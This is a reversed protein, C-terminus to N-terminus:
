FNNRNKIESIQMFEEDKCIENIDELKIIGIIREQYYFFASKHLNLIKVVFNFISPAILFTSIRHYKRLFDQLTMDHLGKLILTGKNKKTFIQDYIFNTFAGLSIPSIKNKNKPLPISLGIKSLKNFISNAGGKESYIFSPRLILHDIEKVVLEGLVKQQQYISHSINKLLPTSFYIIKKNEIRKLSDVILKLGTYNVNGKEPTHDYFDHALHIFTVDDQSEHSFPIEGLKFKKFVENHNLAVEQRSLITVSVENRTLVKRLEKGLQGTGGTIYVKSFTNCNM